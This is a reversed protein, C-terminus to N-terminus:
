KGKKKKSKKVVKVPAKPTKGVYKVIPASPM